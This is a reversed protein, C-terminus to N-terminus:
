CATYIAAFSIQMSNDSDIDLFGLLYRMMEVRNERM